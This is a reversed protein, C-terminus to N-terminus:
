ADWPKDPPRYSRRMRAVPRTPRRRFRRRGRRVPDPVHDHPDDLPGGAAGFTTEDGGGYRSSPPPETRVDLLADTAADPGVTEALYQHRLRRRSAETQVRVRDVVDRAATPVSAVRRSTGTAVSAVRRSGVAASRAARTAVVASGGVQKAEVPLRSVADAVPAPLKEAARQELEEVAAEVRSRGFRRLVWRALANLILWRLGLRGVLRILWAIM